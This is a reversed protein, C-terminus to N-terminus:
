PSKRTPLNLKHPDADWQETTAAMRRDARALTVVAAVTKARADGAARCLVRSLDFAALTDEPRWRAGAWHMWQGSKAVHRLDDAHQTAFDLAVRDEVGGDLAQLKLWHKLTDAVIDGWVDRLREFGAVNRGGDKINVAGAATRARDRVDDDGAARAAATMVASIDNARWGARALVGGIVLAGEHRPNSSGSGALPYYLQLLTAVALKLVARKLETGDVHAPEGDSAWEVMEGTVHMSPPFTTTAGKGNGGIRLEVIMSAARNGVYQPYQLTALTETKHLDCIYLQHSCLKSRRGFIANTPPLFEPALGIASMTDLDVDCLGGSVTGFQIGVNQSNGNFQRPDYPRNQWDKGIAKKTKRNVPVPKWGRKAYDIAADAITKNAPGSM